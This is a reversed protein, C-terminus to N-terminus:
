DVTCGKVNLSGQQLSRSRLRLAQLRIFGGADDPNYDSESGEMSAINENYLSVPSSRGVTIVNGKHLKLRVKGSITKQSDDILAQLAEREPAFWFGNYILTAYQPMLQDRLHALNRDMTLSEIQRHAHMLITGGPTEYVGRSKMGVFRNEVLDVRGIGHKGGIADKSGIM